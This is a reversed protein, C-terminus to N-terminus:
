LYYPLSCLSALIFVFTVVDHVGSFVDFAIIFVHILAVVAMFVDNDTDHVGLIVDVVFFFSITISLFFSKAIFLVFRDFLFAMFRQFILDTIDIFFDNIINICKWDLRTNIFIDTFINGFCIVIKLHYILLLKLELNRM